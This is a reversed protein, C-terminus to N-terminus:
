GLAGYGRVFATLLRGFTARDEEPWDTMVEAFVARRFQHMEELLAQGQM